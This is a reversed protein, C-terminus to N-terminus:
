AGYCKACEVGGPVGHLEVSRRRPASRDLRRSLIETCTLMLCEKEDYPVMRSLRAM